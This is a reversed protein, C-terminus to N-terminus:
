DPKEVGLHAIRDSEALLRIMLLTDRGLEGAVLAVLSSPVLGGRVVEVEVRVSSTDEAGADVAWRVSVRAGGPFGCRVEALRREADLRRSLTVAFPIWRWVLTLRWRGPQVEDLARVHPFLGPWSELNAIYHFVADPGADVLMMEQYHTM